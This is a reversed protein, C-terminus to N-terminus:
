RRRGLLEAMREDLLRRIEAEEAPTLAPPPPAFRAHREIEALIAARMAAVELARVHPDLVAHQRELRAVRDFASQTPM